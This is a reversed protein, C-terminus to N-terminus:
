RRASFGRSVGCRIQRMQLKCEGHVLRFFPRSPPSRPSAHCPRPPRGVYGDQLASHAICLLMEVRVVFAVWHPAYLASHFCVLRGYERSRVKAEACKCKQMQSVDMAGNDLMELGFNL